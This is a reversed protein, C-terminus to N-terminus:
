ITIEGQAQTKKAVKAAMKALEEQCDLLADIGAEHMPCGYKMQFWRGFDGLDRGMDRVKQACKLRLRVAEDEADNASTAVSAAPEPPFLEDVDSGPEPVSGSKLKDIFESAQRKTLQAPVVGYEQQCREDLEEEGLQHENRAILYIAKVQAATAKAAEPRFPRVQLAPAEPASLAAEGMRAGPITEVETEDLWGLGVLALTARRKSKTEAKMLANALPEGRLNGIAVAGISEDYRGDPLSARARVIYVDDMRETSVITATIKRVARLQDTCSRKAYLVLKGNLRIYEFPQTLPNVGISECVARYYIMRDSPSLASLDGGVVVQELIHASVETTALDTTTTTMAHETM